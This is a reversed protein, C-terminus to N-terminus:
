KFCLIDIFGHFVFLQVFLNIPPPLCITWACSNWITDPVNIGSWSTSCFDGHLHPSHMNVGDGLDCYPLHPFLMRKPSVNVRVSVEKKELIYDGNAFM